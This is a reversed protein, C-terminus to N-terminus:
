NCEEYPNVLGLTVGPFRESLFNQLDLGPVETFHDIGALIVGSGSWTSPLRDTWLKNRQAIVAGHFATNTFPFNLYSERYDMLIIPIQRRKLTRLINRFDDKIENPLRGVIRDLRPNEEQATKAELFEKLVPEYDNSIELEAFAMPLTQILNLLYQTDRPSHTDGVLLIAKSSPNWVQHVQCRPVLEVPMYQRPGSTMRPWIAAEENFQPNMWSFVTSANLNAAEAFKRIAITSDGSISVFSTGWASPYFGLRLYTDKLQKFQILSAAYREGGFRFQVRSVSESEISGGSKLIFDRLSDLRLLPNLFPPELLRPSIKSDLPGSFTCSKSPVVNLAELSTLIPARGTECWFNIRTLEKRRQEFLATSDEAFSQVAFCLACIAGIMLKM